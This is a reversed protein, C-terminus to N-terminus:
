EAVVFLVLGAVGLGLHVAADFEPAGDPLEVRFREHVAPVDGDFFGLLGEVVERRAELLRQVLRPRRRWGFRSSEHRERDLQWQLRGRRRSDVALKEILDRRRRVADAITEGQMGLEGTLEFSSRLQIGITLDVPRQRLRHGEARQEDLTRVNTYRPFVGAAAGKRLAM